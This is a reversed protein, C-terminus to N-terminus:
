EAEKPVIPLRVWHTARHFNNFGRWETLVKAVRQYLGGDAEVFDPWEIPDYRGVEYFDPEGARCIAFWSGDRPATEIPELNM